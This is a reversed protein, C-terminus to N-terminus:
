ACLEVRVIVLAEPENYSGRVALIIPYSGVSNFSVIAHGVFGLGVYPVNIRQQFSHDTPLVPAKVVVVAPGDPRKGHRSITFPISVRKGLCATLQRSSSIRLEYPDITTLRLGTGPLITVLEPAAGRISEIAIELLNDGPRVGQLQLYNEFGVTALMGDSQELRRGSVYGLMSTRVRRGDSELVIQAATAGDTAASLIAKGSQGAPFRVSANLVITYWLKGGQRASAELAYRVRLPNIPTIPRPLKADLRDLSVLQPRSSITPVASRAERIAGVTAGTTVPVIAVLLLLIRRRGCERM